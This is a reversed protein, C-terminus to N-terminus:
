TYVNPIQVSILGGEGSQSECVARGGDVAYWVHLTFLGLQGPAPVGFGM